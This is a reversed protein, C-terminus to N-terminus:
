KSPSAEAEDPGLDEVHRIVRSKRTGNAMPEVEVWLLARHGVLRVLRRAM